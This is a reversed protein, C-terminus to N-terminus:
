CPVHVTEELLSSLEQLAVFQLSSLAEGIRPFHGPGGFDLLVVQVARVVVQVVPVLLVQWLGHGDVQVM